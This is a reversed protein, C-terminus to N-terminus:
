QVRHFNSNEGNIANLNETTYPMTRNINESSSIVNFKHSDKNDGVSGVELPITSFYSILWHMLNGVIHNTRGAFGRTLAM